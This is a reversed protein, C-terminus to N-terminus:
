HTEKRNQCEGIGQLKSQMSSIKTEIERLDATLKKLEGGVVGFFSLVMVKKFENKDFDKQEKIWTKSQAFLGKMIAKKEIAARYREQMAKLEQRFAPNVWCVPGMKPKTGTLESGKKEVTNEKRM